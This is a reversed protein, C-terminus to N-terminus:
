LFDKKSQNTIVSVVGGVSVGLDSNGRGAFQQLDTQQIEGAL